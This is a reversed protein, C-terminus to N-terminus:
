FNGLVVFFDDIFTVFYWLGLTSTTRSLGWVDIHVLEFHSKTRSELRKSFSFSVRSM